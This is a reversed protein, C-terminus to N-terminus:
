THASAWNKNVLDVKLDFSRRAVAGGGGGDSCSDHSLTVGKCVYHANVTGANELTAIYTCELEFYRFHQTTTYLPSTM